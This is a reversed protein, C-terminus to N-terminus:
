VYVAGEVKNGESDCKVLSVPCIGLVDAMRKITLARLPRNGRKASVWSNTGLGAQKRLARETQGSNILAANFVSVDVYFIL